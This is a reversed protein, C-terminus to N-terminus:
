APISNLPLVFVQLSDKIKFVSVSDQDKHHWPQRGASVFFDTLLPILQAHFAIDPIELTLICRISM